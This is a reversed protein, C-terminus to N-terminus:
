STSCPGYENGLRMDCGWRNRHLPKELPQAAIYNVVAIRQPDVVMHARESWYSDKDAYIIELGNIYVRNIYDRDLMTAQTPVDTNTAADTPANLFLRMTPLFLILCLIGVAYVTSFRMAGQMLSLFHQTSAKKERMWTKGLWRGTSWEERKEYISLLTGNWKDIVQLPVANKKPAVTVIIDRELMLMLLEIEEDLVVALKRLLVYEIKRPHVMGQEVMYIDFERKDVQQALEALSLGQQQRTAKLYAGFNRGIQADHASPGDAVRQTLLSGVDALYADHDTVAAQAIKQRNM